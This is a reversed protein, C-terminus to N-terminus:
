KLIFSTEEQNELSAERTAHSFDDGTKAKWISAFDKELM